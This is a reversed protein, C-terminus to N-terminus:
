ARTRRTAPQRHSTNNERLVNHLEVSRWGHRAIQRTSLLDQHGPRSSLSHVGNADIAWAANCLSISAQAAQPGESFRPAM